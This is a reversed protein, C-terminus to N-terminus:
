PQLSVYGNLWSTFVELERANQQLKIKGGSSSGDPYFAIQGTNGEINNEDVTLIVSVQEPLKRDIKTDTSFYHRNVVDLTIATTKRNVLAQSRVYRLDSKLTRAISELDHKGTGSMKVGVLTMTLAIIMIVVLMELLAFGKAPSPHVTHSTLGSLSSIGSVSTKIKV